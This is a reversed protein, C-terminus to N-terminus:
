SDVELSRLRQRHTLRWDPGFLALLETLCERVVSSKLRSSIGVVLHDLAQEDVLFNAQSILERGRYDDTGPIDFLGEQIICVQTLIM